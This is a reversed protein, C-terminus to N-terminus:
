PEWHPLVRALFLTMVVNSSHATVYWTNPFGRECERGTRIGFIHGTLSKGDGNRRAEAGEQAVGSGGWAQGDGGGDGIM